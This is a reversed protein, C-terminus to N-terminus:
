CSASILTVYYTIMTIFSAMVNYMQNVNILADQQMKDVDIVPMSTENLVMLSMPVSSHPILHRFTTMGARWRVHGPPLWPLGVM